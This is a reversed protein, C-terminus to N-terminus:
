DKSKISSVTPLSRYFCYAGYGGVGIAGISTGIAGFRFGQALLGNSVILSTRVGLGFASNAQPLRLANYAAFAATMSSGAVCGAWAGGLYAAAKLAKSSEAAYEEPSFSKDMSYGTTVTLLLLTIYKM